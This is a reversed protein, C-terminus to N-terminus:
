APLAPDRLCVLSRTETQDQEVPLIPTKRPVQHLLVPQPMRQKKYKHCLRPTRMRKDKLSEIIMNYIALLRVPSRHNPLSFLTLNLSEFAIRSNINNRTFINKRTCCNNKDKCVYTSVIRSKSHNPSTDCDTQILYKKAYLHKRQNKKGHFTDPTAYSGSNAWGRNTPFSESTYANDFQLLCPMFGAGPKKM